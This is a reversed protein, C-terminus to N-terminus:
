KGLDRGHGTRGNRPGRVSLAKAFCGDAKNGDIM